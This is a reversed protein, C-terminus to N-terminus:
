MAAEAVSVMEGPTVAVTKNPTPPGWARLM